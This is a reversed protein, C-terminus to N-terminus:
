NKKLVYTLIILSLIASIFLAITSYSVISSTGITAGTIMNERIIGSSSIIILILSSIFIAISIGLLIGFIM